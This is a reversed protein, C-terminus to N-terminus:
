SISPRTYNGISRRVHRRNRYLQIDIGGSITGSTLNMAGTDNGSDDPNDSDPLDPDTQSNVNDQDRQVVGATDTSKDSWCALFIATMLIM